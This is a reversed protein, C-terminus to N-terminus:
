ESPDGIRKDKERKDANMQPLVTLRVPVADAHGLGVAQDAGLWLGLVVGQVPGNARPAKRVVDALRRHALLHVQLKREYDHTYQESVGADVQGVAPQYAQVDRDLKQQRIPVEQMRAAFEAPNTRRL